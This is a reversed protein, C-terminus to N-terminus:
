KKDPWDNEHEANGIKLVRASVTFNITMPNSGVVDLSESYNVVYGDEFTLEKMKADEDRKQFTITGKQAKYQNNVMAELIATDDTSEIQIDVTGGYIGSSPRGKSDVDRRFTYSSHLVDYNNGGMSLKAKFSM